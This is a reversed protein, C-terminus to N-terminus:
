GGKALTLRATLARGDRTPQLSAEQVYVKAERELRDLWGYLRGATTNAVSIDVVNGESNIRNIVIGNRDASGTVISRLSAEDGTPAVTAAAAARRVLSATELAEEFAVQQQARYSLAPQVVALALLLGLLMIAAVSVLLRERPSLNEFLSLFRGNM